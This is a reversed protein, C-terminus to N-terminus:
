ASGYDSIVLGHAIIGLVFVRVCVCMYLWLCISAVNGPQGKGLKGREKVREEM